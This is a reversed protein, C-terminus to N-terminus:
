SKTSPSEPKDKMMATDCNRSAGTDDSINTSESEDAESVIINRVSATKQMESCTTTKEWVHCRYRRIQQEKRKKRENERLQFIEEDTPMSFPNKVDTRELLTFKM